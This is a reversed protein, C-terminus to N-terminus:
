DYNFMKSTLVPYEVEKYFDYNKLWEESKFIDNVWYSNIGKNKMEKTFVGDKAHVFYQTFGDSAIPLDKACTIEVWGNNKPILNLFRDLSYFNDPENRFCYSFDKISDFVQQGSFSLIKNTVTDFFAFSYEDENIQDTLDLYRIM